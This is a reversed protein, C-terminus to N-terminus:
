IDKSGTEELHRVEFQNAEVLSYFNAYRMNKSYPPWKCGQAKSPDRRIFLQAVSTIFLSTAM